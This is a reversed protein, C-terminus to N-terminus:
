EHGLELGGLEWGYVAPNSGTVDRIDSRDLDGEWNVGYALSDEHGFLMQKGRLGALNNYLALTEPSANKDSLKHSYHKETSSPAATPAASQQDCGVFFVGLILLATARMFSDSLNM